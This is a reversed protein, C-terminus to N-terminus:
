INDSHLVSSGSLSLLSSLEIDRNHSSESQLFSDILNNSCMAGHVILIDGNAGYATDLMMFIALVCSTYSPHAFGDNSYAINVM